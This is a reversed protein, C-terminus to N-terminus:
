WPIGPTDQAALVPNVEVPLGLEQEHGREEDVDLRLHEKGALLREHGLLVRPFLEGVPEHIILRDLGNSWNEPFFLVLLDCTQFRDARVEGRGSSSRSRM